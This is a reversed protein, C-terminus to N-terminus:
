VACQPLCQQSDRWVSFEYPKQRGPLRTRAPWHQVRVQQPARKLKGKGSSRGLSRVLATLERLKELTKRLDKVERWGSDKWLARSSDFGQPGDM